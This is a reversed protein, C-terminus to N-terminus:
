DMAKDSWIRRMHSNVLSSYILSQCISFLHSPSPKRTWTMTIVDRTNWPKFPYNPNKKTARCLTFTKVHSTASQNGNGLLLTVVHDSRFLGEQCWNSAVYKYKRQFSDNIIHIIKQSSQSCLLGISTFTHTTWTNVSLGRVESSETQLRFVVFENNKYWLPFM